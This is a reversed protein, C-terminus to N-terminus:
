HRKLLSTTTKGHYKRHMKLTQRENGSALPFHGAKTETFFFTTRGYHFPCVFLTQIPKEKKKKKQM